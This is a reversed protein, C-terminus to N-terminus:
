IAQGGWEETRMKVCDKLDQVFIKGHGHRATRLITDVTIDEFADNCAITIQVKPILNAGGEQRALWSRRSAAM